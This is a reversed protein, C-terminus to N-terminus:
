RKGGKIIVKDVVWKVVGFLFYLMFLMTPIQTEIITFYLPHEFAWQSMLMQEPTIHGKEM